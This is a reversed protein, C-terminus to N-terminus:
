IHMREDRNTYSTPVAKHLGTQLQDSPTKSSKKGAEKIQKSRVAEKLDTHWKWM